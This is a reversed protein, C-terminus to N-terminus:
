AEDATANTEHRLCAEKIKKQSTVNDYNSPLPGLPPKVISSHFVCFILSSLPGLAAAASCPMAHCQQPNVFLSWSSRRVGKV